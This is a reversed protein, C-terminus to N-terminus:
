EMEWILIGYSVAPLYCAKYLKKRPCRHVKSKGLPIFSDITHSKGGKNLWPKEKSDGILVGLFLNKLLLM